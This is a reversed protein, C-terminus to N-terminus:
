YIVGKKFFERPVIVNKQWFVENERPFGMKGWPFHWVM